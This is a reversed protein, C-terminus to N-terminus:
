QFPTSVYFALNYQLTVAVEVQRLTCHERIDAGRILTQADGNLLNISCDSSYFPDASRDSTFLSAGLEPMRSFLQMYPDPCTEHGLKTYKLARDILASM